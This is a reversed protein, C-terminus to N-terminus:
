QAGSYHVCRVADGGSGPGEGRITNILGGRCVRVADTGALLMAAARVTAARAVHGTHPAQSPPIPPRLHPWICANKQSAPWCRWKEPHCQLPQRPAPELLQGRRTSRVREGPEQSFRPDPPTAFSPQQRMSQPLTRSQVTEARGPTACHRGPTAWGFGVRASRLSYPLKQAIIVEGGEGQSGCASHKM